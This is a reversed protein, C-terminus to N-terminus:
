VGGTDHGARDKRWARSWIPRSWARSRCRVFRGGVFPRNLTASAAV